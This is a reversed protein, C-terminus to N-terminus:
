PAMPASALWDSLVATVDGFEVSGNCDADGLIGPAGSNLWNALVSTVDAFNVAGDGNADSPPLLEVTIAFRAHFGESFSAEKCIWSAFAGSGPGGDSVAPQLSSLMLRIRGDRLNEALYNQVDPNQVDLTFTFQTDVPVLAGPSVGAAQGIAFPSPDFMDRVNNSIDRAIGGAFDTPFVFRADSMPTGSPLIPPGPSQFTGEFYNASSWPTGMSDTGRYGVGYLEVPRGDGDEAGGLYTEWTDYTSDYVFANATATAIELAASTIVYQCVSLGAPIDAGTDFGVLTQSDRQDFTCDQGNGLCNPFLEQGLASFTDADPKFGRTSNFPYNWLDIAPTDYSAEIPTGAGASQAVSGIGAGVIFLSVLLHDSRIRM